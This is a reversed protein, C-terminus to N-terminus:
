QWPARAEHLALHIIPLNTTGSGGPRCSSFAATMIGIFAEV